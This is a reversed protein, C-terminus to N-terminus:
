GARQAALTETRMLERLESLSEAQVILRCGARLQSITLPNYGTRFAWWRGTGSRWVGWEPYERHLEQLEDNRSHCSPDITSPIPTSM